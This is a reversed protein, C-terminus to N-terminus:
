IGPATSEPNKAAAAIGKQSSAPVIDEYRQNLSGGCSAPTAARLM